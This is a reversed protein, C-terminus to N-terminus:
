RVPPLSCNALYILFCWTNSKKDSPKVFSCGEKASGTREGSPSYTPALWSRNPVWLSLKGPSVHLKCALQLFLVSRHGPKEYIQFAPSKQRSGLSSPSNLGLLLFTHGKQTTNWLSWIFLGSPLLAITFTIMKLSRGSWQKFFFFLQRKVSLRSASKNNNNKKAKGMGGKTGWRGKNVFSCTNSPKM